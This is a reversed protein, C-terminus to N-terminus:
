PKSVNSNEDQETIILAGDKKDFYYTLNTKGTLQEFSKFRVYARYGKPVLAPSYRIFWKREKECM